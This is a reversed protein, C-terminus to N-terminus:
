IKLMNTGPLESRKEINSHKKQIGNQRRAEKFKALNIHKKQRKITRNKWGM